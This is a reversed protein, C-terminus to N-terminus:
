FQMLGIIEAFQESCWEGGAGRPIARRIALLEDTVAYSNKLASTDSYGRDFSVVLAAIDPPPDALEVLAELFEIANEKDFEFNENDPQEEDELEALVAEAASKLEVLRQGITKEEMPSPMKLVDPSRDKKKPTTRPGGEKRHDILTVVSIGTRDASEKLWVELRRRFELFDKGAIKCHRRSANAEYHESVDGFFWQTNQSLQDKHAHFQFLSSVPGECVMSLNQRQRFDVTCYRTIAQVPIPGRHAISGMGEISERWFRRYKSIDKLVTPLLDHYTGGSGPQHALYDAIFDEDPYLVRKNLAALEVEFVVVTDDENNERGYAFGQNATLYV